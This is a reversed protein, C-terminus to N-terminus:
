SPEISRQVVAPVHQRRPAPIFAARRESGRRM